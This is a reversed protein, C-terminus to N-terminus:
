RNGVSGKGASQFTKVIGEVRHLRNSFIEPIQGGPVAVKARFRRDGIRRHQVLDGLALNLAPDFGFDLFVAHNQADAIGHRGRGHRGRRPDGLRPGTRHGDRFIGNGGNCRRHRGAWANGGFGVGPWLGRCLAQRPQAPRRSEDRSRDNGRRLAHDGDIEIGFILVDFRGGSRDRQSPAVARRVIGPKIPHSCIKGCRIQCFQRFRVTGVLGQSFIGISQDISGILRGRNASILRQRRVQSSKGILGCGRGDGVAAFIFTKRALVDPIGIQFGTSVRHQGGGWVITSSVPHCRCRFRRFDFFRIFRGTLIEGALIQGFAQHGVTQASRQRRRDLGRGRQLGDRSRGVFSEVERGDQIVANGGAQGFAGHRCLCPQGFFPDVIVHLSFLRLSFLRPGVNHFSVNQFSANQVIDIQNGFVQSGVVQCNKVQRGVRPGDIVRCRFNRIGVKRCWKFGGGFARFGVFVQEFVVQRITKHGFVDRVQIGGGPGGRRM